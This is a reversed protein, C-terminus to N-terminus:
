AREAFAEIRAAVEAVSWTTTPRRVQLVPTHACLATVAAFCRPWGMVRPATHVRGAHNMVLPVRAAGHVDVASVPEDGNREVVVIGDLRVADAGAVSADTGSADPLWAHKGSAADVEPAAAVDVALARAADPALHVPRRYPLVWAERDRQDIVVVDDVVVTHGRGHLAVATTSKGAGAAGALAVARGGIQVLTAHLCLHGRQLMALTVAWSDVLWSPPEGAGRWEVTVDCGAEVLLAWADPYRVLARDGVVELPDGPEGPEGLTTLVAGYRVRLGFPAPADTHVPANHETLPEAPM